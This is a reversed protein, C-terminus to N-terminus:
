QVCLLLTHSYTETAGPQEYCPYWPNRYFYDSIIPFYLASVKFSLPNM